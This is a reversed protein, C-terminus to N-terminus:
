SNTYNITYSILGGITGTVANNVKTITLDSYITPGFLIIPSTFSVNNNNDYDDLIGNIVAMNVLVDGSGLTENAYGTIIIIGSQMATLTGIDWFLESGTILTPAPFASTFNFGGPLSDSINTGTITVDGSNFYSIIYSIPEGITGTDAGNVKNIVLDSATAGPAFLTVPPTTTENNLENPDYTYWGGIAAYNTVTDGSSFYDGSFSVTIVIDGSQMPELTGIDWYYMGDTESTFTPTSSVFM